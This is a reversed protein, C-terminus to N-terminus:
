NASSSRKPSPKYEIGMEKCITRSIEEDLYKKYENGNKSVKKVYAHGNRSLYIPLIVGNTDTYTYKTEIEGSPRAKKAAIQEFNNGNRRTEAKATTCSNLALILAIVIGITVKTPKNIDFDFLDRVYNAFIKKM